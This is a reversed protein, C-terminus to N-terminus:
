VTAEHRTRDEKVEGDELVVSVEEGDGVREVWIQMGYQDAMESLLRLNDEDLLSGDRILLVKITPNLAIGMATSVKLREAGSLQAFPIGAFFLGDDTFSLGSVPLKANEIAERKERDLGDIEETLKNAKEKEASLSQFLRAADANRRILANREELQRRQAEISSADVVPFSELKSKNEDVYAQARQQREELALIEARLHALKVTCDNIAAEANRLNSELAQKSAAAETAQAVLKELDASQEEQVPLKPDWPNAKNQAELEGLKRNVFTREDYKVKRKRENLGFDYPVLGKIIEIQEKLPLMAFHLPDFSLKSVFSDLLKQPSSFPVGDRGRVEVATNGNPQIVRHVILDEFEVIIEGREAGSRVPMDSLARKGALAFTVSDLTSTKGHGNKGGVIFVGGTPTIDIMKVRQINETKLRKIIM